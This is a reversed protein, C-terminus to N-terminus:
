TAVCLLHNLILSIPSLNDYAAAVAATVAAAAAAAAAVAPPSQFRASNGAGRRGEVWLFNLFFVSTKSPRRNKLWSGPLVAVTPASVMSWMPAYCPTAM